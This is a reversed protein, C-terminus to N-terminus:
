EDLEIVPIDAAQALKIMSRTGKGGPFAVVLDPNHELMKANRMPGAARGYKRWEAPVLIIDIHRENAWDDALTDAGRSGGHILVKIPGREVVLADLTEYVSEADNYNRGGCVLLRTM